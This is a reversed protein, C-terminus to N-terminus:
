HFLILHIGLVGFLAGVAGEIWKAFRLYKLRIWSRSFLIVVLMFWLFTEVIILVFIGARALDSVDSGVFLSFISGFYIISKPNSINTLFGRIFCNIKKTNIKVPTSNTKTKHQHWWSRLLQLSMWLLYLGGVITIAHQLWRMKELILNLGLLAITTWIAVAVTIGSAAMIADKRSRSAATQSIFFFDPGPSMLAIFHVLAVTCFLVIM